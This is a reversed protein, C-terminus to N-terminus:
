WLQTYPHQSSEPQARKRSDTSGRGGDGGREGRRLVQTQVAPTEHVVQPHHLEHLKPLYATAM